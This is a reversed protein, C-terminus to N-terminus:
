ATLSNVANCRDYTANRGKLCKEDAEREKADECCEGKTYGEHKYYKRRM